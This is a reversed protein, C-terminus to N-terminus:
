QPTDGSIEIQETEFRAVGDCEGMGCRDDNTCGVRAERWFTIARA